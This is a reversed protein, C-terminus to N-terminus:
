VDGELSDLIYRVSQKISIIFLEDYGMNKYNIKNQVLLINSIDKVVILRKNKNIYEKIKVIDKNNIIKELEYLCTKIGDLTTKIKEVELNQKNDFVGNIIEDVNYPEIEEVVDRLDRNCFGEIYAGGETANILTVDTINNAREEFWYRIANWINTTQVVDGYYGKTDIHKRDTEYVLSGFSHTKDGDYALDQGTLIIQSAGMYLCLEFAQHAVSNIPDVYLLDTEYLSELEDVMKSKYFINNGNNKDGIRKSACVDILLNYDMGNIHKYNVYQEPAMTVVFHAKIGNDELTQVVTYVAVILCKNQMKKIYEINKNLSPGASVIIVPKGKIIDKLICANYGDTYRKLNCIYNDVLKVKYISNGYKDIGRQIPVKIAGIYQEYESVFNSSYGISEYFLIRKYKKHLERYFEFGWFFEKLSVDSGWFYFSYTVNERELKVDINELCKDFVNFSPELVIVHIPNEARDLMDMIEYMLGSGFVIVIEVNTLDDFTSAQYKAIEVPTYKSYVYKDNITLTKNGDSAAYVSVNINNDSHSINTSHELVYKKNIEYM